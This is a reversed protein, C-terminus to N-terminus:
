SGLGLLSALREKLMKYVLISYKVYYSVYLKFKLLKYLIALIYM